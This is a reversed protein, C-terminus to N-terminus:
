GVALSGQMRTRVAAFLWPRVAISPAMANITMRNITCIKSKDAVNSDYRAPCRSTATGPAAM